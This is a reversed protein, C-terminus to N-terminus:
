KDSLSLLERFGPEENIAAFDTDRAAQFRNEPRHHISQKLYSLAQDKNGRLANAAAMAYLIHDGKPAMKLASQLHNMAADIEGRNMLAIGVNYHDDASRYVSRAREHIKIECTHIRARASAQIEPEDPFAAILQNFAKIAKEYDEAYMLKIGGEYANLAGAMPRPKPPAAPKAVVKPTKTPKAAHSPKAVKVAAAAKRLVTAVRRAVKAVGSVVKKATPAKPKLRAKAQLKVKQKLSKAQRTPKAASKTKSKISHGAAKRPGPKTAM